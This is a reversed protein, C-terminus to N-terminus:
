EGGRQVYSKVFEGANEQLVEDIADVLADLDKRIVKGTKVASNLRSQAVEAVTEDAIRDRGTESSRTATSKSTEKQAQAREGM